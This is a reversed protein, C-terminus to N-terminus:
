SKPKVANDIKELLQSLEHRAQSGSVDKAKVVALSEKLTEKISNTKDKEVRYANQYLKEKHSLDQIETEKKEIQTKEHSLLLAFPTMMVLFVLHILVETSLGQPEYLVLVCILAVTSTLAVQSRVLFAITLMSLYLLPFFPSSFIGTQLVIATALMILVTLPFAIPHRKYLASKRIVVFAAGSIGLIFPYAQQSLMLTTLTAIAISLILTIHYLLIRRQM